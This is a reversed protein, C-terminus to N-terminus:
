QDEILLFVGITETDDARLVEVYIEIELEVRVKGIIGSIDTIKFAHDEQRWRLTM